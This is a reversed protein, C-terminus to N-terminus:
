LGGTSKRNDSWIVFIAILIVIAMLFGSAAYLSIRFADPINKVEHPSVMVTSDLYDSANSISTFRCCISFVYEGDYLNWTSVDI